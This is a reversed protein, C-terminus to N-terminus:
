GESLALLLAIGMRAAEELYEPNVRDSVDQPTHLLPDEWRHFMLAPIGGAIFSAHDSSLGRILTSDVTDIGLEAALAGMQEQLAADGILWWAEDGVGVMDLNLMAKIRDHEKDTLTSVYHRSGLLGLEEGGFLVFCNAGMDRTNRWYVPQAESLRACCHRILEASTRFVQEPARAFQPVEFEDATEEREPLFREAFATVREETRRASLAYLDTYEPM